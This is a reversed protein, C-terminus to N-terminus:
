CKTTQKTGIFKFRASSWFKNCSPEVLLLTLVQKESANSITHTDYLKMNLLEVMFVKNGIPKWLM